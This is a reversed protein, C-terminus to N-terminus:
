KNDLVDTVFVNPIVLCGDSPLHDSETGYTVEVEGTIKMKFLGVSRIGDECVIATNDEKIFYYCSSEGPKPISDDGQIIHLSNSYFEIDVKRESDEERLKLVLGADEGIPVIITFKDKTKDILGEDHLQRMKDKAMRISKSYIEQIGEVKM